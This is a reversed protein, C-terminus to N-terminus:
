ENGKDFGCLNTGDMEILSSHKELQERYFKLYNERPGHLTALLRKSMLQSFLLYVLDVQLASTDSM